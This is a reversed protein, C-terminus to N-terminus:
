LVSYLQKCSLCLVRYALGFKRALGFPFHIQYLLGDKPTSLSVYPMVESNVDGKSISHLSKHHYYHQHHHHHHYCCCGYESGFRETAGVNSPEQEKRPHRFAKMFLAHYLLVSCADFMYSLSSIIILRHRYPAPFDRRFDM